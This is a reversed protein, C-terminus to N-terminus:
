IGRGDRDGDGHGIGMMGGPGVIMAGGGGLIQTTGPGIDGGEGEWHHTLGGDPM